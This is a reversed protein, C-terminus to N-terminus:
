TWHRDQQSYWWIFNMEHPFLTPSPTFLLIHLQNHRASTNWFLFLFKISVFVLWKVYLYDCEIRCQMITIDCSCRATEFWRSSWQKIFRKNLPVDFCVCFNRTLPGKHPFGDTVPPERVLSWKRPFLKWTSIDYYFPRKGSVYFQPNRMRRSHRSRKGRWRPNAFGVHM